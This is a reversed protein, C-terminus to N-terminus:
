ISGTLKWEGFLRRFAGVLTDYREKSRRSVVSKPQGPSLNRAEMVAAVNLPFELQDVLAGIQRMRDVAPTTQPPAGRKVSAFVEAVLDPVANALGSVCGTVGMAMAEPLRTDSGTFVVFNKQRGLEVLSRHYEFESGSQKVGALPIREAVEAITELAIRNGVREPFNYLFMPLQAAEGARVFFEVLDPQALPFFDPPLVAVAAVRCERAFRGLEAVAAPRIDSINAIITFNEGASVVKELFRKREPLDFHPFEGTSGHPLLGHVGHGRIFELNRKLEAELMPTLAGPVGAVVVWGADM